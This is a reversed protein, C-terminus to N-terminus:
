RGARRKRWWGPARTAHQKAARPPPNPDVYLPATPGPDIGCARLAQALASLIELNSLTSDDFPVSYDVPGRLRRAAHQYANRIWAHQLYPRMWSLIVARPRDVPPWCGIRFRAM